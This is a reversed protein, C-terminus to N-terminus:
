GEGEGEKDVSVGISASTSGMVVHSSLSSCTSKSMLKSPLVSDTPVSSVM